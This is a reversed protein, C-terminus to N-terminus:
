CRKTYPIPLYINYGIIIYFQYVVPIGEGHTILVKSVTSGYIVNLGNVTLM